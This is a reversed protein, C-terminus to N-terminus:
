ITLHALTAVIDGGKHIGIHAERRGHTHEASGDVVTKAIDLFGADQNSDIFDEIFFTHAVNVAKCFVMGLGYSEGATRVPQNRLIRFVM